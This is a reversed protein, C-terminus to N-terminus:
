NDSQVEPIKSFNWSYFYFFYDKLLVILTDFKENIDELINKFQNTKMM